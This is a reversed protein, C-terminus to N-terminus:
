EGVLVFAGWYYPAGYRVDKRLVDQAARFAARKSKGSTWGKYFETMLKQTANDSVTWLSMVLSKAGAVRFARQLGYVGEGNKVEGLGTECASLVVLETKDLNLNMAEYATLIGDEKTGSGGGTKRNAGALALGARLLPNQGAKYKGDAERETNPLFFGHTAIHLVRPNNEAKVAEELASAGERVTVTWKNKTLLNSVEEIETKTGPLERFRMNAFARDEVLERSVYGANRLALLETKAKAYGATDLDYDPYGFIDATGGSVAVKPMGKKQQEETGTASLLDKTNTVTRVDVEDILSKGTAPNLLTNLNIQNYVGDPSVFVTKLKPNLQKLKDAIPKWYANYSDNDKESRLAMTKGNMIGAHYRNAWASDMAKGNPLEVLVPHEKTEKSVILAAYRVDATFEMVRLSSDFKNPVSGLPRFRVIEVAAEDPKLKKQVDRWTFRTKDFATAFAESRRSLEKETTNAANEISDLNIRKKDLDAKSLQSFKAIQDKQTQWAGLLATLATDGSATIRSKVKQTASLLLGKVALQNDYMRGLATPLEAGHDCAFSNYREFPGSMTGWFSQKERESLSPFYGDLIKLNVDLAEAYFPEAKAYDGRLNHLRSM